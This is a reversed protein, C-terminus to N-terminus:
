LGKIPETAVNGMKLVSGDEIPKFDKFWQLNKCVHCTAGSDVWWSLDDDQVYFTESIISVYYNEVSHDTPVLFLGSQKGPDKSGSSGAENKGKGGGKSRCDKKFHGPKGCKWCTVKPKKDSGKNNNGQFKRKGKGAKSSEGEEVMNVSSGTMTKTGGVSGKEMDRISQEIQFHSGLEVLNM